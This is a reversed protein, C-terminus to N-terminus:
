CFRAIFLALHTKEFKNKEKSDEIEKLDALIQNDVCEVIGRYIKLKSAELLSDMNAEYSELISEEFKKQTKNKANM